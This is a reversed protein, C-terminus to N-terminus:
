TVASVKVPKCSHTLHCGLNRLFVIPTIRNSYLRNLGDIGAMMPVVQRQRDSEYALLHEMDGIGGM